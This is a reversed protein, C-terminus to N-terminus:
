LRKRAGCNRCIGTFELNHNNVRKFSAHIPKLQECNLKIGKVLGCRECIVHHHHPMDAAEYSIVGDKLQVKSALKAKVLRTLIRYVTAQDPAALGLEMIIEGVMLPRRVEKMLSLIELRASTAKLGAQRLTNVIIKKDRAMVMNNCVTQM